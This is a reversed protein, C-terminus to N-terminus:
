RHTQLIPVDQPQSLLHQVGKPNIGKGGGSGFAATEARGGEQVASHEQAIWKLVAVAGAHRVPPVKPPPTQGGGTNSCHEPRESALLAGEM